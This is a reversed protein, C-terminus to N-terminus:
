ILGGRYRWPSDLFRIGHKRCLERVSDLVIGGEGHARREILDLVACGAPPDNELELTLLVTEGDSSPPEYDGAIRELYAVVSAAGDVRVEFGTVGDAQELPSLEHGELELRSRLEEVMSRALEDQRRRSLKKSSPGVARAPVGIALKGPAISSVVYSGSAVIAERGIRCGAYVVTGMGVQARDEIVVPAFRNEFGELISHGVNHTVVISRMTLFVEAGILVPRCVNVFAEEGVFALEGISLTAWPDHRGGGGIKVNRGIYANPGIHARRCDLELGPYALVLEGAAFIEDCIVSSEEGLTVDNALVIQPAVVITGEGLTVGEGVIAGHRRYADCKEESSLARFSDPDSRLSALFEEELRGANEDLGFSEPLTVNETSLGALVLDPKEAAAPESAILREVDEATVFGKKDIAALDIGHQEALEVAAKTAKTKGDKQKAKKTAEPEKGSEARAAAVEEESEAVVAVRKGLEIEDGVRYLHVITGDGPSVIEIAAKTTEVVCVPAGEKVEGGDSVMWELLLASESNADERTLIVELM